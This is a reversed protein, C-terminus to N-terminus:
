PTRIFRKVNNTADYFEQYVYNTGDATATYNVGAFTPSNTTSLRQDELPQRGAISNTLSTYDTSYDTELDTPTFFTATGLWNTFVPDEEIQIASGALAVTNTYTDDIQAVYNTADEAAMTGLTPPNTISSYNLNTLGAGDGIFGDATMASYEGWALTADMWGTKPPLFSTIAVSDSYGGNALVWEGATCSITFDGLSWEPRTDCFEGKFTYEGNGDEFPAPLGSVTITKPWYNTGDGTWDGAIVTDFTVLDSTSLRQDEEPQFDLAPPNTISSYDIDATVSAFTVDNTTSLRQDELPQYDPVNDLNSWDITATVSAFEVDNTTSLRQDELPQKGAISNTLDALSGASGVRGPRTVVPVDGVGLTPEYQLLRNASIDQPTVRAMSTVASLILLSLIKKM